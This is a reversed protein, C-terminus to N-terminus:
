ENPIVESLSSYEPDLQEKLRLNVDDLKLSSISEIYKFIERKCFSFDLLINAINSVSNLASISEGYVSRKAREFAKSDIGNKRIKSVEEQIINSTEKPNKSEGSFIISAFGPGELYEHSFSTTNILGMDLLKIYMPSSKSAIARLIIDTCAVQKISMRQSTEVKEKFGLNFIPSGLEFKQSVYPKVTEHPEDPFLSETEFPRSYKVNKDIISLTTDIDINGSICLSMNNLNYYANYCEYLNEPTIKSISEITGAIEHAVPHNKYMACLLNVLVKWGPSDEYMQIEQGIIGREKEVNKDTFYPSQVFNLLIDLSKEFNDACSFLYATKDFSTYANASAGTKSYLEFADAEKGEFLKHELYHAIGDPVETIVQGPNARFRSNISGYNTGMIAYSSKYGSKPYLYISLGSPHKMYFYKEQLKESIIQQPKM